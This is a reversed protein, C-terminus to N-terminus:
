AAARELVALAEDVESLFRKVEREMEAIREDNRDIRRVWLRMREPFDPNYSAFDVWARGACAMQWLCQLVYKEPIARETLLELHAAPQPAKLEVMGDDGVLGDPSAHTRPISPHRILGVEVVDVDREFAYAARAEPEREIGTLMAQSQFTDLPKGTLREVVLRARLNARSAGWGTKTRALAEHIQSAGLSGVRAALWEPSRQILAADTM